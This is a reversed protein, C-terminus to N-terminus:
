GGAVPPFLAMTDTDAVPTDLGQLDRILRGKLMIQVHPAVQGSVPDLVQERLAPLREFVAQLADAVTAGPVVTVEVRDVGPLRFSAFLKVLM